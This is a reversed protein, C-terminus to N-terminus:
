HFSCTINHTVCLVIFILKGTFKGRNPAKIAKAEVEEQQRKEHFSQFLNKFLGLLAAAEPNNEIMTLRAICFSVVGTLSDAASVPMRRKMFNAINYIFKLKTEELIMCKDRFRNIIDTSGLLKVFDNQYSVLNSEDSFVKESLVALLMNFLNGEYAKAEKLFAEFSEIDKHLSLVVSDAEMKLYNEFKKFGFFRRWM